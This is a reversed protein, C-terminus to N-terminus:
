KEPLKRLAFYCVLVSEVIEAMDKSPDLVLNIEQGNKIGCLNCRVISEKGLRLQFARPSGIISHFSLLRQLWTTGSVQRVTREVASQKHVPELTWWTEGNGVHIQWYDSKKEFRIKNAGEKLAFLVVLCVFRKRPEIALLAKGDIIDFQKGM